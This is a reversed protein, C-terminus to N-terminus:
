FSGEKMVLTGEQDGNDGIVKDLKYAYFGAEKSWDLRKGIIYISDDYRIYTGFEQKQYTWLQKEDSVALTKWNAYQSLRGATGVISAGNGTQIIGTIKFSDGLKDYGSGVRAIQYFAEFDQFQESYFVLIDGYLGSM